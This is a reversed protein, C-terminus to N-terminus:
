GQLLSTTHCVTTAKEKPINHLLTETFFMTMVREEKLAPNLDVTGEGGTYSM